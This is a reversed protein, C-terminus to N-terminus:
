RTGAVDQGDRASGGAIATGKWNQELDALSLGYHDIWRDPMGASQALPV